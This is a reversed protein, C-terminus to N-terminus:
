NMYNIKTECNHIFGQSWFFFLRTAHDSKNYPKGSYIYVQKQYKGTIVKDEIFPTIKSIESNEPLQYSLM